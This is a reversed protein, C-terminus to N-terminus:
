RSILYLILYVFFLIIIIFIVFFIILLLSSSKHSSPSSSPYVNDDGESYTSNSNNVIKGNQFLASGGAQAQGQLTNITVIKDIQSTKNFPYMAMHFYGNMGWTNGWSNRIIWYPVNTTINKSDHLSKDSILTNYVPGVGWGIVCIAHSGEFSNTKNGFFSNTTYDIDEFYIGHTNESSTFKGSFLNQYVLFGSVTTGYNYIWTKLFNRHNSIDQSTPSDMQLGAAKVNTIYYLLNSSKNKCVCSPILSNLYTADSGGNVCANNKSCWSFDECKMDSIGNESIWTVTPAIAGGNCQYSYNPGQGTCTSQDNPNSCHPFCSLIYTASCNPNKIMNNIVFVDSVANSISYAWCCGCTFQNGVPTFQENIFSTQDSRHNDRWNFNSQFSSPIQKLALNNESTLTTLSKHTQIPALTSLDINTNLPPIIRIQPHSTGTVKDYVNETLYIPKKSTLELNIPVKQLVM